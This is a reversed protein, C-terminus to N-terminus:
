KEAEERARERAEKHLGERRERETVRDDLNARKEEGTEERLKAIETDEQADNKTMPQTPMREGPKVGEISGERKAVPAEDPGVPDPAAGTIIQETEAIVDGPELDPIPDGLEDGAIVVDGQPDKEEIIEDAKADVYDPDPQTTDESAREVAAEFKELNKGYGAAKAAAKAGHVKEGREGGVQYWGNGLDEVKRPSM